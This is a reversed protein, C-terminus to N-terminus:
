FQQELIVLRQGAGVAVRIAEPATPSSRFATAALGEPGTVGATSQPLVVRTKQRHYLELPGNPPAVVLDGGGLLLGSATKVLPTFLLARPEDPFTSPFCSGSGVGFVYCDVRYDGNISYQSVAFSQESSAVVPSILASPMNEWPMFRLGVLDFRVFSVVGAAATIVYARTKGDDDTKLSVDLDM